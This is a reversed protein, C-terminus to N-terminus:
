KNKTLLLVVATGFVRGLVHLSFGHCTKTACTDPKTGRIYLHKARRPSGRGGKNCSYTRVRNDDNNDNNSNNKNDNSNGNDSENDKSNNNNYYLIILIIM